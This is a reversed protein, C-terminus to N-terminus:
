RDARWPTVEAPPLDPKRPTGPDLRGAAATLITEVLAAGRIPKPFVDVAGAKLAGEWITDDPFASMLVVPLAAYRARIRTLLAVGDLGPMRVDVVLAHPPEGQVLAQWAAEGDTFAQVEFGDHSLLESLAACSASDDDVVMVRIKM